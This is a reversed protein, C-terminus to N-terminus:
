HRRSCWRGQDLVWSGVGVFVMLLISIIFNGRRSISFSIPEPIQAAPKGRIPSPASLPFRMPM